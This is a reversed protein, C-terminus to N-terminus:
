RSAYQAPGCPAATDRSRCSVRSDHVARQTPGRPSSVRQAQQLFAIDSAVDIWRLDEHFELCDFIVVADDLLLMNGLHLAGHCERVFGDRKRAVFTARHVAFTRQCWVERVRAHAQRVPDDIADFLHQFNERVQQYIAEPTGFRSLPDATAIRAHFASVEHALHDM